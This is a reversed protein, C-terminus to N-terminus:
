SSQEKEDMSTRRSDGTRQDGKAQVHAHEPESLAEQHWPNFRQPVQETVTLVFMVDVM